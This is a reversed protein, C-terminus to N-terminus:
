ADERRRLRQTVQVVYEIASGVHRDVCAECFPDDPGSTFGQCENEDGGDLILVCCCLSEQEVRQPAEVENM